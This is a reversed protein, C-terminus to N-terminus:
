NFNRLESILHVAAQKDNAQKIIFLIFRVSSQRAARAILFAFNCRCDCTTSRIERTNDVIAIM